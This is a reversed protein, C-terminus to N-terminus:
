ESDPPGTLSGESRYSSAQRETHHTLVKLGALSSMFIVHVEQLEGIRQRKGDGDSELVNANQQANLKPPGESTSLRTGSMM